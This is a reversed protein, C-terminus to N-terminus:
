IAFHRTKIILTLTSTDVYAPSSQQSIEVEITRLTPNLVCKNVDIQSNTGSFAMM